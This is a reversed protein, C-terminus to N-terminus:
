IQNWYKNGQSSPCIMKLETAWNRLRFYPSYYCYRDWLTVSLMLHILRHFTNTCHRTWILVKYINVIIIHCSLSESTFKVKNKYGLSSVPSTITAKGQKISEGKLNQNKYGFPYVLVVGGGWWWNEKYWKKKRESFDSISFRLFLAEFYFPLDQSMCFFRLVCHWGLTIKKHARLNFWM